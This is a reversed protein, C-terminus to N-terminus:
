HLFHKITPNDVVEELEFDMVFMDIPSISQFISAASIIGEGPVPGLHAPAALQTCISEKITGSQCVCVQVQVLLNSETQRNTIGETPENTPWSVVEPGFSCNRHHLLTNTSKTQGTAPGKNQKTRQERKQSVKSHTQTQKRPTTITFLNPPLPPLISLPLHAAPPPSLACKSATHTHRAHQPPSTTRRHHHRSIITPAARVV